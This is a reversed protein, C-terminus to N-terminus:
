DEDCPQFRARAQEHQQRAALFQAWPAEEEDLALWRRQYDRMAAPPTVPSASLAGEVARLWREADAQLTDLWATPWSPLCAAHDDDTADLYATAEDLRQQALLLTRLVEATLPRRQLAQLHYELTSSDQEWRPDFQRRLMQELYDLAALPAEIEAFADPPQAHSARAFSSRWESSDVLTNWGVYPLQETKIHTLEALRAQNEESLSTPVESRQCVDLRLWLEREYLWQQSPPAVRGLQNNRAAVLSTIQCERLAYVGLLTGRTEEITFRRAQREPYAGINPPTSPTISGKSLARELEAHYRQWPREADDNDCGVLAFLASM